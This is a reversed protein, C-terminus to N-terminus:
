FTLFSYFLLVFPYVFITSDFRDLIGGHGPLINGSDKVNWRRKMASEVLDGIQGFFSVMIAFLTMLFLSDFVPHVIEFGIAFFVTLLFGGISGEITKNPSITPSLKHKGLFKGTLYAFTDNLCILIYPFVVLLFGYDMRIALLSFLGFAVYPISLAYLGIQESTFISKVFIFMLLSIYTVLLWLMFKPVPIFIFILILLLHLIRFLHNKDTKMMKMLETHCFFALLVITGKLFYDGIYLSSIFFLLVFFGTISRKLM